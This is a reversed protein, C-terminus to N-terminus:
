KSRRAGKGRGLRAIGRHPTAADFDRLREHRDRLFEARAQACRHCTAQQWFHMCLVKSLESVRVTAADAVLSLATAGRPPVIDAFGADSAAAVASNARECSPVWSAKSLCPLPGARMM